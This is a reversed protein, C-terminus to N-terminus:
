PAAQGPLTVTAGLQQATGLTDFCGWVEITQGNAVRHIAIGTMTVPKGTPPYPGFAGRHTGTLTWRVAARDGAVVLDDVTCHLDPFAALFAGGRQLLADRGEILRGPEHFVVNPAVAEYRSADDLHNFLEYYRHVAAITEETSM